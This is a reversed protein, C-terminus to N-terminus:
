WLCIGTWPHRMGRDWEFCLSSNLAYILPCKRYTNRHVPRTDEAKHQLCSYCTLPHIFTFDINNLSLVSTISYFSCCHHLSHFRVLRRKNTAQPHGHMRHHTPYESVYGRPVELLRRPPKRLSLMDYRTPSEMNMCPMQGLWATMRSCHELNSCICM